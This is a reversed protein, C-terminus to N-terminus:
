ARVAIRYRHYRDCRPDTTIEVLGVGRLFLLAWDVSKPTCGTGRVIREKTWWVKRRRAEHLWVFVTETASGSRWRGAGPNERRSPPSSQAAAQASLRLLETAIWATGGRM